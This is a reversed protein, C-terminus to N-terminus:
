NCNIQKWGHTEMFYIKEANLKKMWSYTKKTKAAGELNGDSRPLLSPRAM